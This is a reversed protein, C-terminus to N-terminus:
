IGKQSESDGSREPADYQFEERIRRLVRGAIDINRKSYSFLRDLGCRRVKVREREAQSISPDNAMKTLPKCLCEYAGFLRVGMIGPLQM